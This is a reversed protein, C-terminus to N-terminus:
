IFLQYLDTLVIHRNLSHHVAQKEYCCAVEYHQVICNFPWFNFFIYIKKVRTQPVFYITSNLNVIAKLDNRKVRLWKLYKQCGNMEFRQLNWARRFFGYRFRINIEGIELKISVHLLIYINCNSVRITRFKFPLLLHKRLTKHLKSIYLQTAVYLVSM